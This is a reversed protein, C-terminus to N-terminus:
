GGSAPPLTVLRNVDFGQQQLRAKIAVLDQVPLTPTRALIWLYERSPESVVSYRYDDALQIVWYPAWVGPFWSVIAPAFRVELRATSVPDELPIGLVRKQQLRARGTAEDTKGDGTRCRNVVEVQGHALLKYDATVDSACQKQFRNPYYAIQYWHGMYRNIDVSPVSQLPETGAAVAHSSAALALATALLSARWPSPLRPSTRM